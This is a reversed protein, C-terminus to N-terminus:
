HLRPLRLTALRDLSLDPAIKRLAIWERHEASIEQSLLALFALAASKDGREAAARADALPTESLADLNDATALYRAANRDNLSIVAYSALLLQLGSALFGLGVFFRQAIISAAETSGEFIHTIAPPLGGEFLAWLAPLSSALLVLLAAVRWNRASRSAQRHQNGRKRYYVREEDLLYRRIYELQLPLLPIPQSPTREEADLVAAFLELRKNEAQGRKEMWNEFNRAAGVKISLALSIAMLVTQAIAAALIIHAPIVPAGPLIIVTGFAVAAFAALAAAKAERKYARQAAAAEADYTRFAHIIQKLEKQELVARLPAADAPLSKAHQEPALQFDTSVGDGLARRAAEAVNAM